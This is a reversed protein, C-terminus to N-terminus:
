KLKREEINFTFETYANISVHTQFLKHTPSPSFVLPLLMRKKM